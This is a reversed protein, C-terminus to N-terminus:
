GGTQTADSYSHGGRPPTLGAAASQRAPAAPRTSRPRRRAREHARDRPRRRPGAGSDPHLRLEGARLARGAARATLLDTQSDGVLAARAADVGLRTWSRWCTVPTPSACRCRKAASRSRSCANSISGPWCGTPRCRRSTPASGSGSAPPLSSRSCRAGRGRLGPRHRVPMRAYRRLFEAFLEDLDVTPPVGGSARLGRELLARAGDGIM